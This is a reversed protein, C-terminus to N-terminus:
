KSRSYSGAAFEEDSAYDGPLYTDSKTYRDPNYEELKLAARKADIHALADRVAKKHDPEFYYAAGVKEKWGETLIRKVEESGEAPHGGGMWTTVGSAAFYAGISVAKESMWEPAFGAAPLDSIDDGLGGENVCQTLVTLIRTNDVCSGMHLVPPIGITECVERLGPGAYNM